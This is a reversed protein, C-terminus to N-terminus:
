HSVQNPIIMSFTTGHNANSIVDLKGQHAEAIGKVLTLGLGWGNSKDNNARFYLDFLKKQQDLPIPNGENHVSLITQEGEQQLNLTIVSGKAGYKYANSILNDVARCIAGSDWYGMVKHQLCQLSIRERVSPKLSDISVRIDELLDSKEPHIPVPNGAQILNVDLLNSILENGKATSKAIGKLIHDVFEDKVPSLHEDLLEVLQITNNLPGRLDHSLSAIFNDRMIGQKELDSLLNEAKDMAEKRQDTRIQYFVECAQEIAQDIAFMIGDRERTEINDGYEDIVDFITDKLMHYEKIIHIITYQTKHARERGHSESKFVPNRADDSELAIILAEILNPINNKLVPLNYQHADPIKNRVSTTWREIIIKKNVSLINAASM